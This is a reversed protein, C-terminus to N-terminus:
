EMPPMSTPSCSIIPRLMRIRLTSVYMVRARMLRVTITSNHGCAKPSRKPPLPLPMLWVSWLARRMKERMSSGYAMREM